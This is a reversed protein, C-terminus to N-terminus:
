SATQKPAWGILKPIDNPRASYIGHAQITEPTLGSTLLDEWHEPHFGDKFDDHLSVNATM